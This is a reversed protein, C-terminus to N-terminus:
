ASIIVKAPRIVTEGMKYGQQMASVVTDPDQDSEMTSLAEHLSPDFLQGTPDFSTVNHGSLIQQLQSHIGEVGKRWTDDIANWKETDAMAMHFSDCLPLLAEIDKIKQREIGRNKEEDLRKRANLFDAKTLALEELAVRKDEEVQKLKARLAQLKDEELSEIEELDPEEAAIETAETDTVDTQETEIEVNDEDKMDNDNNVM